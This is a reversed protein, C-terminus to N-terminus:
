PLGRRRRYQEITILPPRERDGIEKLDLYYGDRCNRILKMSKNVEELLKLRHRDELRRVFVQIIAFAMQSLAMLNQNRHIRRLLDVQAISQLGYNDLIDILLGTEVGYGTFFPVRELVERRGAYEGSLPQIVGSLEPFFLNFIPRATLETVRGGGTATLKDGLALPRRYFGKVYKIKPEQLLPGLLGYVFSPHINSIDTDIWAVVDGKLVYLSKWLAEGKGRYSGLEPLIEQHKYVPVGLSTAIRVTDDTSGSDILVIEDLLPHEDMLHGKISTIIRGVTKEENLAPLGLSISLGQKIKLKVLHSINRFERSHFSNEAFWKDVMLSLKESSLPRASYGPRTETSPEDESAAHVYADLNVPDHTKVIILSKDTQRAVAECIPGLSGPTQDLRATAGMIIVDHNAAEELIATEADARMTVVRNITEQDAILRQFALYPEDSVGDSGMEQTSHMVTVTASLAAALSTAVNLAFEAYQGGRVPLLIRHCCRLAAPKAVVINCPPDKMVRDITTSYTKEPTTTFGKWGLILTDAEQEKVADVIGQWVQHSVRVISQVEVVDAEQLGPIAGLKLRLKQAQRAGESLSREEPVEVIALLIIRGERRFSASVSEAAPAISGAGAVAFGDGDGPALRQHGNHTVACQPLLAKALTLLDAATRYDAIAVIIKHQRNHNTRM